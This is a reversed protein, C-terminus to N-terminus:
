REGKLSSGLMWVWYMSGKSVAKCFQFGDEYPNTRPDRLGMVQVLARFNKGKANPEYARGIRIQQPMRKAPAFINM